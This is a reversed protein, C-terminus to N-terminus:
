YSWMFLIRDVDLDLDLDMYIWISGSWSGSASREQDVCIWVWIWYGICSFTCWGFCCHGGRFQSHGPTPLHQNPLRVKGKLQNEPLVADPFKIKAEEMAIFEIGTLVTGMLMCMGEKAKVGQTSGSVENSTTTTTAAAAAATSTSVEETTQAEIQIGQDM